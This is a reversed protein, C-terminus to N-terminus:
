GETREVACHVNRSNRQPEELIPDLLSKKHKQQLKNQELVVLM